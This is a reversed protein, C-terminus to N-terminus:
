ALMKVISALKAELEAIRLKQQEMMGSDEHERDALLHLLGNLRLNDYQSKTLNFKEMERQEVATQAGNLRGRLYEWNNCSLVKLVTTSEQSPCNATPNSIDGNVITFDFKLKSILEASPSYVLVYDAFAYDMPYCALKNELMSNVTAINYGLGAATAISPNRWLVNEFFAFHPTGPKVDVHVLRM